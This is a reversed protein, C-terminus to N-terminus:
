VDREDAGTFERAVTSAGAGVGRPRMRDSEGAAGAAGSGGHDDGARM